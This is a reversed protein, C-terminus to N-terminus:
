QMKNRKIFIFKNAKAKAKSLNLKVKDYSSEFNLFIKVM